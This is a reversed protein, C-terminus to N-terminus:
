QADAVVRFGCGHFDNHGKLRYFRRSSRLGAAGGGWAGGRLTGRGEGQCWEWVNGSMDYLGWANPLKQGVKNTRMGSNDKHWACDDRLKNGWYFATTSGARCAYEWEQETPLRYTMGDKESLRRCFEEADNRDVGEKPYDAFFPDMNEGGGVIYYYQKETVECAGVYFPKEITVKHQEPEDPHRGLERPPSSMMFEGRKILVFEMGVESGLVQPTLSNQFYTVEVQM